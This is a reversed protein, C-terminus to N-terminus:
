IDGHELFDVLLRVQQEVMHIGKHIICGRAQAATLLATVDPQMVVEAVLAGPRLRTPDVPLADGDHMGLATGNIVLDYHPADATGTIVRAQPFAAHLQAVLTEAKDPSRNAITLSAVGAALLAYAVGSAAGGAGVILAHRGQVAHGQHRLGAVFGEGDFMAGTLSGDAERRVVNCVGLMAAAGELRDCLAAIATKHPITVVLGALNGIQRLAKVTEDLALPPVDLPVMTMDLGRRVCEANFPPPTRVHRCPHALLPVFRTNGTIM